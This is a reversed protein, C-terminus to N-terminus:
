GNKDLALQQPVSEAPCPPPGGGIKSHQTGAVAALRRRKAASRSCHQKIHQTEIRELSAAEREDISWTGATTARAVLQDGLFAGGPGGMVGGMVSAVCTKM